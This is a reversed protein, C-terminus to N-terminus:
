SVSMVLDEIVWVRGRLGLKLFLVMVPVKFVMCEKLNM